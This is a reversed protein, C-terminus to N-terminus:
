LREPWNPDDAEHAKVLGATLYTISCLPGVAQHSFCRITSAQKFEAYVPTKTVM